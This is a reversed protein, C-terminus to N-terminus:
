VIGIATTLATAAVLLQHIATRVRESGRRQAVDVLPSRSGLPEPLAM